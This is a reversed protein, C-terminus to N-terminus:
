NRKKKLKNIAGKINNKYKNVNKNETKKEKKVLELMNSMINQFLTQVFENRKELYIINYENMEKEMNEIYLGIKKNKQLFYYMNISFDSAVYYIRDMFYCVHKLMNLINISFYLPTELNKLFLNNSNLVYYYSQNTIYIVSNTNRKFIIMFIFAIRSYLNLYFYMSITFIVNLILYFFYYIELM